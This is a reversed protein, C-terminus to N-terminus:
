EGTNKILTNMQGGYFSVAIYLVVMGAILLAAVGAFVALQHSKTDAESELYDAVKEMMDDLSGTQEGTRAMQVAMPSLLASRELMEAIGGGTNLSGVNTLIQQGIARNGCARAAAEMARPILVGGAYLTGLARTFRATAYRRTVGGTGPILLKLHDWRAGLAPFQNLYRALWWGAFVTGGVLAAFTLQGILGKTGASLFGLLLTVLGAVFLVIKPYLTERKLRRRVEIEKELYDAIRHAMIDINGSTEGARVLELQISTFTSPHRELVTSLPQGANVAEACERLLSKLRPHNTQRSLTEMAQGIPVGADMLTAFQRYMMAMTPLPVSILFPAIDIRQQAGPPDTDGTDAPRAAVGMPEIRTAWLGQERLAGAAGRPEAAEIIGSVTRGNTDKAEYHFTAM